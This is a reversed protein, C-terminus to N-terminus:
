KYKKKIAEEQDLYYLDFKKQAETAAYRENTGIEIGYMLFFSVGLASLLIGIFRKSDQFSDKSFLYTLFGGYFTLLAPIVVHVVPSLSYGVLLGIAFGMLSFVTIMLLIVGEFVHLKFKAKKKYSSFFQVLNYVLFFGLVILIYNFFAEGFFIFTKSVDGRM